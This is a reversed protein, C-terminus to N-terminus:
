SLTLRMLLQYLSLPEAGARRLAAGGLDLRQLQPVRIRRHPHAAALAQLLAEADGQAADRDILSAIQVSHEDPVTFLLQASGRQWAQLGVASQLSEPMVQLPLDSFGAAALQNLWGMAAPLEVQRHECPEAAMRGPEAVYGHLEHVVSFGRGQYLRLARENQAFVELELAVLGAERGRQLFDDLLAPAAGRGRAAPVAGMTALRWRRSQPRPAVLAFALVEGHENLVARSLGLDAGQRRLLAPWQDLGLNFPGAVYDAFALNFATHLREPPLEAATILTLDQAIM